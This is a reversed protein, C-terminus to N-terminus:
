SSANFAHNASNDNDIIVRPGAAEPLENNSRRKLSLKRKLMADVMDEEMKDLHQASMKRKSISNPSGSEHNPMEIQFPSRINEFM